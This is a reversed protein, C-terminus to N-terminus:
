PSDGASLLEMAGLLEALSPLTTFRARLGGADVLVVVATEVAGHEAVLRLDELAASLRDVLRAERGEEQLRAVLREAQDYLEAQDRSVFVLAQM